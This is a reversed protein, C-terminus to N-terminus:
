ETVGFELVALPKATSIACFESYCVDMIETFTEWYERADSPSQPGYVSIGIWDVYDDGPYYSGMSNWSEKPWGDADVHFVWTINDAGEANFLDVIHRYADRFREPGDPEAPDGYGDTTDGGNWSGNWPFWWGNVEVGFCVMLPIASAKADQAWKKLQEDFQGDIIRQLTYVSDPRGEVYDCESWAMMRIYPVCGEEWVLAAQAAPFDIGYLWQDSFPVWVLEKDVLTEFDRIRQSTVTDETGGFDPFACHYVGSDPPLIKLSDESLEVETLFYDDAVGEKYAELAEPSSDLRLESDGGKDNEWNEHWYNIAKIRPYRGERISQLADTIWDAKRSGGGSCGGLLVFMMLSVTMYKHM